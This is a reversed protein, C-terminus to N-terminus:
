EIRCEKVKRHLTTGSTGCARYSYLDVVGGGGGGTNREILTLLLNMQCFLLVTGEYQRHTHFILHQQLAPSRKRWHIPPQCPAVVYLTLHHNIPKLSLGLDLIPGFTTSSNLIADM